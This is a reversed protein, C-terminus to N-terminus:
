QVKCLRIFRKAGSTRYPHRVMARWNERADSADLGFRQATLRATHGPGPELRVWPGKPLGGDFKGEQVRLHRRLIEEAVEIPDGTRGLTQALEILGQKQLTTRSNGLGTEDGSAAEVEDPFGSAAKRLQSCAEVVPQEEMVLQLGVQGSASARMRIRDFVFMVCQYLREYPEIVRLATRIRANARSTLDSDRLNIQRLISLCSALLRPEDPQDDSECARLLRLMTWRTHDEFEAEESGQLARRLIQAEATSLMGAHAQRGWERLGQVPLRADDRLVNMGYATPSPFANALQEGLPRLMLAGMDALHLSELFTSYAGIGGYRVQNSLLAFSLTVKEKNANLDRWRHVARIGRLGETARAGIPSDEEAFGCALGWAREFTKLKEIIQRRRSSVSQGDGDGVAERALKLALCLMSAYRPVTTITTFGPLIRDALAVYGAMFGLPDISGSALDLPDYASWFVHLSPKDILLEPV